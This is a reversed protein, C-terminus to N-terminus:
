DNKKNEYEEASRYDLIHPSITPYKNLRIRLDKNKLDRWNKLDTINSLEQISYPNDINLVFGFPRFTFECIKSYLNTFHLNGLRSNGEDNLYMYLKYREPLYNTRKDKVFKLLEPHMDTFSLDNLCIFMAIVQKMFYLLNIDPIQFDYCKENPYEEIISYSVKALFTYDNVYTSGLFNNCKECLCYEGYGGQNIKSNPKLRRLSYEKSNKYFDDSSISQFTTRKNFASRPPIHEYTLFREKKCLKCIGFKKAKM